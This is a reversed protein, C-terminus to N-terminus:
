KLGRYIDWVIEMAPYMHKRSYTHYLAGLTEDSYGTQELDEELVLQRRTAPLQVLLLEAFAVAGDLVLFISLLSKLTCFAAKTCGLNIRGM